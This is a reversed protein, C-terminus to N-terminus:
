LYLSTQNIKFFDTANRIWCAICMRRITNDDTAQTVTGCKKLMTEYFALNEFFFFLINFM